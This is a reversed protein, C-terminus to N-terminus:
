RTDSGGRYRFASDNKGKQRKLTDCDRVQKISRTTTQCLITTLIFLNHASRQTRSLNLNLDKFGLRM